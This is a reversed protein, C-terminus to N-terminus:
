DRYKVHCTKCSASVIKFQATLAVPDFERAILLDELIRASAHSERMMSMFEEPKGQVYSTAQLDRYLDALRGAEAAPVLDPHDAPTMWGAKEILKLHKYAHDVDVMGQVFSSPRSVSPFEAPAADIVSAPLVTANGAVAYLGTYNAATGSVKMRAVGEEPSIWGLSASVCAAAGASRHKGHHCHLYVPGELMADRTARTLEIRRQEDFGNYGIPLHIYRIGREAAKEVEPASGDVSIITKVGMAALTDFGEDGEPVSGSIFGDHFAVANHIGPYDFPRSEDLSPLPITPAVVLTQSADRTDSAAGSKQSGACSSLGALVLTVAFLSGALRLYTPM